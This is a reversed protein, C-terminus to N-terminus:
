RFHVNLYLPHKTRGDKTKGLCYIQRNILHCIQKERTEDCHTGWAAIVIGDDDITAQTTLQIALNNDAGVPDDAAKMDKPLTARYGFANLMILGGMNWTKAFGICRRITPDDVTEDATSPNLGIFICPPLDQDWRRWLTWRYKRCPSFSAGTEMAAVSDFLLEGHKRKRTKPM